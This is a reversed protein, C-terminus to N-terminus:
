IVKGNNRLWSKFGMTSGYVQIGWAEDKAGRKGKISELYQKQLNHLEASKKDSKQKQQEHYITAMGNRAKQDDPMTNESPYDSNFRQIAMTFSQEPTYKGKFDDGMLNYSDDFMEKMDQRMNSYGNVGKSVGSKAGRGGM